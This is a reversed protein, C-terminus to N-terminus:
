AITAAFDDLLRDLYNEAAMLDACSTFCSHLERFLPDFRSFEAATKGYHVAPKPYLPDNFIDQKYRIKPFV